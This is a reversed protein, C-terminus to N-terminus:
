PRTTTPLPHQVPTSPAGAGEAPWPCPRTRDPALRLVHQQTAVDAYGLFVTGDPTVEPTSVMGEGPLDIQYLFCGERAAYVATSSMGLRPRRVLLAPARGDIASPTFAALTLGASS